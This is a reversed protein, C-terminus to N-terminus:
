SRAEQAVPEKSEPLDAICEVDGSPLLQRTSPGASWERGNWVARDGEDLAVCRDPKFRRAFLSVRERDDLRLRRRAHPLVVIGPLLGLGHGLLEANGPGQPPSDHFLVVRETIAMAGASWAFVPLPRPLSALLTDLQFLRMRNLLSAVHGGAILLAFCEGLISRLERYHEDVAPRSAPHYTLEFQRQVKRTRALHQKDVLRLALVAAEREAEVLDSPAPAQALERAADLAHALRGRYLDQLHRLTDQKARHAQFLEPDRGFVDDSRAHLRLNVCRHGLFEQLEDDEAEREQWGATITALQGPIGWRSLEQDITPALRQPGLLVGLTM